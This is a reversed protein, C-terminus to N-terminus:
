SINKTFSDSIWWSCFFLTTKFLKLLILVFLFGRFCFDECNNEIFMAMNEAEWILFGLSFGQM